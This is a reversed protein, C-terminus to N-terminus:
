SQRRFVLVTRSEVVLESRAPWTASGPLLQPEATSLELSWRAGFRRAPLRFPLPEDHANFLVLFSDDRIEAGRPTAEALEDGNVFVGIARAAPNRWDRQTMKRGDPRMWWV